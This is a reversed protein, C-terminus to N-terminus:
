MLGVLRTKGVESRDLRGNGVRVYRDRCSARRLRQTVAGHLRRDAHDAKDASADESDKSGELYPHAM